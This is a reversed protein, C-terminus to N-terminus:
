GLLTESTMPFYLFGYLYFYIVPKIILNKDSENFIILLIYLITIGSFVASMIHVGPYNRTIFLVGIVFHMKYLFDLIKMINLGKANVIILVLFIMIAAISVLFNILYFYPIRCFSLIATLVFIGLVTFEIINNKKTTM